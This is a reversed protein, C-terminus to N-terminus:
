GKKKFVETVLTAESIGSDVGCLRGGRGEEPQVEEGGVGAGIEVGRLEM